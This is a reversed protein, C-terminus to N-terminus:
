FCKKPCSVALFVLVFSGILLEVVDRVFGQVRNICALLIM